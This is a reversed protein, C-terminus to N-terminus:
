EKACVAAIVGQLRELEDTDADLEIFVLRLDEVNVKGDDASAVLAEYREQGYVVCRKDPENVDEVMIIDATALFEIVNFPSDPNPQMEETFLSHFGVRDPLTENIRDRLLTRYKKLSQQRIAKAEDSQMWEVIEAM